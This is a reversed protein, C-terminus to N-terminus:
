RAQCANRNKRILIEVLIHLEPVSLKFDEIILQSGRFVKCLLDELKTLAQLSNDPKLPKTSPNDFQSAKPDKYHNIYVQGTKFVEMEPIKKHNAISSNHMRDNVRSATNNGIVPFMNNKDGNLNKDTFNENKDQNKSFFTITYIHKIENVSAPKVQSYPKGEVNPQQTRKPNGSANITPIPTYQTSADKRQINM